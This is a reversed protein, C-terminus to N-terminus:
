VVGEVADGVEELEEVEVEELEEVEEEGGANVEPTLTGMVVISSPRTNIDRSTDQM